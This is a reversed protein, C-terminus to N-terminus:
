VNNLYLPAFITPEIGKVHHVRSAEIMLSDFNNEGKSWTKYIACFGYDWGPFVCEFAHTRFCHTPSQLIFYINELKFQKAWVRSKLAGTPSRFRM